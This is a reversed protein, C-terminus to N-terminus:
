RTFTYATKTMTLFDRASGGLEHPRYTSRKGGDFRVYPDAQAASPPDICTSQLVPLRM